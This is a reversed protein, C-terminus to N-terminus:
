EPSEGHASISATATAFIGLSGHGSAPQSGYTRDLLEDTANEVTEFGRKALFEYVAGNEIGFRIPEGLKALAMAWERAAELRCTGDAVSKDVYNFVVSSGEGSNRAIFLLTEDVASATLYMTVGEWIFLTRATNEFGSVRLSEFLGERGFDVPVYAVHSPLSGFLARIKKRKVAQTAPHDVEFVRVGERLAAFRYARSDYGAGLIVLQQIGNETCRLLYEDIYRTRSVIERVAWPFRRNL